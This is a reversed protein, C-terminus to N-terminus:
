SCGPFLKTKIKPEMEVRFPWVRTKNEAGCRDEVLVVAFSLSRMLINVKQLTLYRKQQLRESTPPKTLLACLVMRSRKVDVLLTAECHKPQVQRLLDVMFNRIPNGRSCTRVKKKAAKWIFIIIIAMTNECFWPIETRKRGGVEAAAATYKLVRGNTPYLFFKYRPRRTTPSSNASQGM